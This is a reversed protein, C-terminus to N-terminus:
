KEKGASYLHRRIHLGILALGIILLPIGILLLPTRIYGFNQGTVWTETEYNWYGKVDRLFFRPLAMFCIGIITLPIGISFTNRNVYAIFRDLSEEAEEVSQGREMDPDPPEDPYNDLIGSEDIIFPIVFIAFSVAVTVFATGETVVITGFDFVFIQWEFEITLLIGLLFLYLATVVILVIRVKTTNNM